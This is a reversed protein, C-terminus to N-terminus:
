CCLLLRLGEIAVLHLPYYWYFLRGIKATGRKGNYLALLPVTALAFWQVGGYDLALLVLGTTLLLLKQKKNKGLWVLIPLFVGCTGYDISYDTNPLLAPLIDCFFRVSLIATVIVAFKSLNGKTKVWECTFIVLVSMSFTILICQYLSGMAIFYVVQCLTGLGFLRLFYKKRDHTYRCGEAIMYAYIPMALRGIVRLIPYQPLLQLGVHDFTMAIMAIIKLQNSTFGFSDQSTIVM